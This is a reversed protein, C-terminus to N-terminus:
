IFMIMYIPLTIVNNEKKITNKNGFVYGFPIGYGNEPKVLKPLARYNTQDNGSKIEIPLVSLNNYDNILFDM